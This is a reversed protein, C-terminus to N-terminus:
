KRCASVESRAGSSSTSPTSRTRRRRRPCCTRRDRGGRRPLGGRAVVGGRGRDPRTRGSARACARAARRTRAPDGRGHEFPRGGRADHTREAPLRDVRRPVRRRRPDRGGSRARAGARRRAHPEPAAPQDRGGEGSCRPRRAASAAAHWGLCPLSRPLGGAHRRSAGLARDHPPRLPARDRAWRRARRRQDRRADPVSPETAPPLARARRALRRARAGADRESVPRHRRRGCLGAAQRDARPRGVGAVRDRRADPRAVRARTPRVHM